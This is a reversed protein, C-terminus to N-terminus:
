SEGGPLTIMVTTGKNRDSDIVVTGKMASLMKKVIVLGLGKGHAKSTFVDYGSLSLMARYTKHIGPDDDVILTNAADQSFGLGSEM